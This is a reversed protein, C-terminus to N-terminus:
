VENEFGLALSLILSQLSYLPIVKGESAVTSILCQGKALFVNKEQQKLKDAKTFIELIKQDGKCLIKLFDRVEADIKLTPHRSDILHLFLKISRRKELFEVLNKEWIKKQDKSVKAYGFGPLDIMHFPIKEDGVFYAQYFNILRTKGPTSSSKALGKKQLLFNIFSSKGVNSRGLCAIEINQSQPCQAIHSASTMFSADKIRNQM